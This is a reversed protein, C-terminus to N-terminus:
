PGRRLPSCPHAPRLLRPAAHHHSSPPPPHDRGPACWMGLAAGAWSGAQGTPAHLADRCGGAEGCALGLRGAAAGVQHHHCADQQHMRYRQARREFGWKDMGEQFDASEINKCSIGSMPTNGPRVPPPAHQVAPARAACPTIRCCPARLSHAAVGVPCLVAGAPQARRLEGSPRAMDAQAQARDLNRHRAHHQCQGARQEGHWPGVDGAGAHIDPGGNFDHSAAGM